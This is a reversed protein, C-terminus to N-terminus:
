RSAKEFTQTIADALAKGRMSVNKSAGGSFNYTGGQVVFEGYRDVMKPLTKAPHSTFLETGLGREILKRLGSQSHLHNISVLTIVVTFSLLSFAPNCL